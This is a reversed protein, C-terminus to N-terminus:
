KEAGKDQFKVTAIIADYIQQGTPTPEWGMVTPNRGGTGLSVTMVWDGSAIFTIYKGLGTLPLTSESQSLRIATQGQVEFRTANRLVDERPLAADPEALLGTSHAVIFDDLPWHEPNSLLYFEMSEPQGEPSHVLYALSIVHVQSFDVPTAPTNPDWPSYFRVDPPYYFSLGAQPYHYLTWGASATATATDNPINLPQCGVLVIGLCAIWLILHNKQM